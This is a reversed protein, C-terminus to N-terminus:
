RERPSGRLEVYPALNYQGEGFGVFVALRDDILAFAPFSNGSGGLSGFVWGSGRFEGDVHIVVAKLSFGPSGGTTEIRDVHIGHGSVEFTAHAHKPAGAHWDLTLRRLLPGDAAQRLRTREERADPTRTLAITYERWNQHWRSSIPCDEPSRHKIEPANTPNM